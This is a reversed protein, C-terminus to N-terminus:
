GESTGDTAEILEIHDETIAGYTVLLELAELPELESAELIDELSYDRLLNKLRTSM